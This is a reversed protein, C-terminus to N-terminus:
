AVKRENIREDLQELAQKVQDVNLLSYLTSLRMLVDLADRSSMGERLETRVEKIATLDLIQDSIRRKM